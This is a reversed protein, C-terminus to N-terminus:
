GVFGNTYRAKITRLNVNVIRHVVSKSLRLRRAIATISVGQRSMKKAKQITKIEEPNEELRGDEDASTLNGNEDTGIIKNAELTYGGIRTTVNLFWDQWVLRM